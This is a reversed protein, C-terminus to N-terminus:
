WLLMTQCRRHTTGTDWIEPVAEDPTHMAKLKGKQQLRDVARYYLSQQHWSLRQRSVPVDINVQAPIMEVIPSSEDDRLRAYGPLRVQIM